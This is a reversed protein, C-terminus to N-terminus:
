AQKKSITIQRKVPNNTMGSVGSPIQEIKGGTALYQKVQADISHSTETVAAKKRPSAM